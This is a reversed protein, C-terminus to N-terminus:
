MYPARRSSILTAFANLLNPAEFARNRRRGIRMHVLIRAEVLRAVAENAAQFSCGALEAASQVTLAPIGALKKLLLDSASGSRVSGLRRRSESQLLHARLSFEEAQAVASRCANAFHTIWVFISEHAARASSVGTTAALLDGYEQAQEALPLSIPPTTRSALGRRRFIMHILARGVRGNDAVFPHMTAFQAYAIAAQAVTPLLDQNCFACLDDLLTELTESPPPL